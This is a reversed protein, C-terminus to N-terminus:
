MPDFKKLIDNILPDVRNRFEGWDEQNDLTWINAIDEQSPFDQIAYHLNLAKRSIPHDDPNTQSTARAKTRTVCVSIDTNICICYADKVVKKSFKKVAQIYDSRAFEIVVIERKLNLNLHKNVKDNLQVLADEFATNDNVIFGDGDRAIRRDGKRFMQELIDHDNFRYLKWGKTKLEKIHKATTSKGSGPRGLLFIKITM